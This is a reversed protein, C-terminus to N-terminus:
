DSNKGVKRRGGLPNELKGGRWASQNEKRTQRTHCRCKRTLGRGVGRTDLTGTTKSERLNPVQERLRPRIARKPEETLQKVSAWSTGNTQNEGQIGKKKKKQNPCIGTSPGYDGANALRGQPMGKNRPKRKKSHISARKKMKKAMSFGQNGSEKSTKKGEELKKGGFLM